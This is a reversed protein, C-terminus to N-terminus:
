LQWRCPYGCISAQAAAYIEGQPQFNFVAIFGVAALSFALAM